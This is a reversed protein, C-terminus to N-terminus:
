KKEETEHIDDDDDDDDTREAGHPVYALAYCYMVVAGPKPGSEESLTVLVDCGQLLLPQELGCFIVYAQLQRM